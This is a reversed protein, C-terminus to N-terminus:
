VGRAHLEDEIAANIAEIDEEANTLWDSMERCTLGSPPRIHLARALARAYNIQAQTPAKEPANTPADTKVAAGM